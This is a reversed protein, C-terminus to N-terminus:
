DDGEHAHAAQHRERVILVSQVLLLVLFGAGTLVFFGAVVGILVAPLTSIHIRGTLLLWLVVGGAFGYVTSAACIVQEMKM